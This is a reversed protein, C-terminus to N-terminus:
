IRNEDINEIEIMQPRRKRAEDKLYNKTILVLYTSFKAEKRWQKIRHCDKDLLRLFVNQLLDEPNDSTQNCKHITSFILNKYAYYFTETASKDGSVVAEVLDIEEKKSLM